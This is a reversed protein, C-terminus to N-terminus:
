QLERLDDLYDAYEQLLERREELYLARNYAACVRGGGVAHALAVEIADGSFRKFRPHENAITSGASRFGHACMQDKTYGLRRLAAVMTMDSMPRADTRSSPFVYRSASGSLVHMKRLIEVAQRPLPVLHERGMKMREPPIRWLAEDLFFETWEAKQVEGPRCWTYATLFLASQVVFNGDLTDLARILGGLEKPDTIAARPKAKRTQLVGRLDAAPDRDARGTGVGYCFVQSLINRVRRAVEISGRAEIRRIQELLLPADVKRIDRKGIYPFINKELREMIDEAHRKAWTAKKTEHWERAVFELTFM